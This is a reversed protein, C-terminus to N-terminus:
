SRENILGLKKAIKIKEELYDAYTDPILSVLPGDRSFYRAILDEESYEGKTASNVYKMVNKLTYLIHDNDGDKIYPSSSAVDKKKIDILVEMYDRESRAVEHCFKTCLLVWEKVNQEAKKLFQIEGTIIEVFLSSLIGNYRMSADDHTRELESDSIDWKISSQLEKFLEQFALDASHKNYFISYYGPIDDNGYSVDGVYLRQYNDYPGPTTRLIWGKNRFEPSSEISCALDDEFSQIMKTADEQGESILYLKIEEIKCEENLKELSETWATWPDELSNGYRDFFADFTRFSSYEPSQTDAKAKKSAELGLYSGIEECARKIPLELTTAM